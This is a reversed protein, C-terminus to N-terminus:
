TGGRRRSAPTRLRLPRTWGARCRQRGPRHRCARRRPCRRRPGALLALDEASLDGTAGDGGRVRPHSPGAAAVSLQDLPPAAMAANPVREELHEVFFSRAPAERAQAGAVYMLGASGQGNPFEQPIRSPDVALTGQFALHGTMRGSTRFVVVTGSSVQSRLVESNGLEALSPVQTGMDVGVGTKRGMKCIKEVLQVAEKGWTPDSFVAHAEDIVLRLMPMARSPVFAKIKRRGLWKSRATVVAFAARLMEMIEEISLAAWDVYDNFDPLSQGNQPDALWVTCVGSLLYELIQLGMFQSKGSGTAGSILSHKAGGAHGKGVPAWARFEVYGGTAYAGVRMVGTEVDLTPGAWMQLEHIPNVKLFTIRLRNAKGTPHREIALSDAGTDLASAVEEAMGLCRTATQKGRVLVVNAEWGNKVPIRSALKAGPWPCGTGAVYEDWEDEVSMDLEAAAIASYKNRWWWPTAAGVWLLTDYGGGPGAPDSHVAIILSAVAVATCAAAYARAITSHLWRRWATALAIVGAIPALVCAARYAHGKYLVWGALWLFLMIYLPWLIRRMRWLYTHAIRAARAKRIEGPRFKVTGDGGIEIVHGADGRKGRGRGHTVTSPPRRRRRRKRDAM